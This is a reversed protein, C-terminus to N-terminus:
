GLLEINTRSTVSLGDMCASADLGEGSCSQTDNFLISRIRACSVGSIDFQRVRLHGAPLDRMDFLTLRELKGETDFLVTEFVAESIDKGLKNEVVFSIRCAGEVDGAANLEIHLAASSAAVQANASGALGSLAAAFLFLQFSRM